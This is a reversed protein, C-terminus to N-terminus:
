KNSFYFILDEKDALDFEGSSGNTDDSFDWLIGTVFNSNNTSNTIPVQQILHGFSYINHVYKPTGSNTYISYVSDEFSGM